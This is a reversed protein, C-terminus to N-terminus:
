QAAYREFLEAIAEPREEVIWHGSDKILEVSVSKWGHDPLAKAIVPNLVGMARDGGVLVIPVDTADREAANLKEAAPYAQRYFALGARLQPLSAYARAYRAVDSDRIAKRNLALRNFFDRLYVFERGRIMKEPLDPTQHFGFHWLAPDGKLQDWPAIGPIPSDLIMAGRVADPHLRALAYAIMGGNDHGAVYVRELRLTRILEHIDKALNAIDHGGSGAVSRGVGRMDVAIVTFTKALRPMIRRFATWDQPFGHLLVIAPGNGARVYHLTAGNVKATQSTLGGGLKAVAPDLRHSPLPQGPASSPVATTAVAAAVAITRLIQLNAM